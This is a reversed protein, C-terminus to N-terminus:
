RRSCIRISQPQRNISDNLEAEVNSVDEPRLATVLHNKGWAYRKFQTLNASKDSDITVKQAPTPSALPLFLSIASVALNSWRM